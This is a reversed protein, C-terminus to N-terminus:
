GGMSFSGSGASGTGPAYHDQVRNRDGYQDDHEIKLKIRLLKGILLGEEAVKKPNFTELEALEPAVRNIFRKVRGQQSEQLSMTEFVKRNKEAFEGETIAYRIDWKPKGSSKALGYTVEEITVDYTGQPLPAFGADEKTEKMNFTYADGDEFAVGEQPEDAATNNRAM